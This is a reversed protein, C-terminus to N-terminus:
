RHNNMSAIPQGWLDVCNKEPCAQIQTYYKLPPFLTLSFYFLLLYFHM